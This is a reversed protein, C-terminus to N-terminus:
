IPPKYEFPELDKAPLWIRHGEPCLVFWMPHDTNLGVGHTIEVVKGWLSPECDANTKVRALFGVTPVWQQDNM